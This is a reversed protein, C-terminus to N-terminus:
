GFVGWWDCRGCPPRVQRPREPMYHRDGRARQETEQWTPPLLAAALIRASGLRMESSLTGSVCTPWRRAARAAVLATIEVGVDVGAEGLGV